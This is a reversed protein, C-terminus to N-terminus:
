LRAVPDGGRSAPVAPAIAPPPPRAAAHSSATTKRRRGTRATANTRVRMRRLQYTAHLITSTCTGSTCSIAPSRRFFGALGLGGLRPRM